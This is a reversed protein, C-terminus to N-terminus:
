DEFAQLAGGMTTSEFTSWTIWKESEIQLLGSHDLATRIFGNKPTSERGVETLTIKIISINIIIVVIVVFIITIMMIMMMM